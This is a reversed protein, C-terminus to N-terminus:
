STQVHNGSAILPFFIIYQNHYSRNRNIAELNELRILQIRNLIPSELMAVVRVSHLITFYLITTCGENMRQLNVSIIHLNM